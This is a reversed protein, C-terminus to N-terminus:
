KQKLELENNSFEGIRTNVYSPLSYSEGAGFRRDKATVRRRIPEGTEGEEVVWMGEDELLEEPSRQVEERQQGNSSDEATTLGSRMMGEMRREEAEEIQRQIVPNRHKYEVAQDIEDLEEEYEKMRQAIYDETLLTNLLGRWSAVQKYFDADRNFCNAIEADDHRMKAIDEEMFQGKDSLRVHGYNKVFANIREILNHGLTHFFPLDLPNMKNRLRKFLEVQVEPTKHFRMVTYVIELLHDYRKKYEALVAQYIIRLIKYWESLSYTMGGLSVSNGLSGELMGELVADKDAGPKIGDVMSQGGEVKGVLEGRKLKDEVEGMVFKVYGLFQMTFFPKIDDIKSLFVDDQTGQYQVAVSCIEQLLEMHSQAQEQSLVVLEQYLEQTKEIIKQLCMRHPESFRFEKIRSQILYVLSSSLLLDRYADLIYPTTEPTARLLETVLMNFRNNELLYEDANISPPLAPTSVSEDIIDIVKAEGRKVMNSTEDSSDAKGEEQMMLEKELGQLVGGVGSDGAKELISTLQLQSIDRGKNFLSHLAQLREPSAASSSSSAGWDGGAASKQTDNLVALPSVDPAFKMSELQDFEDDSVTQFAPPNPDLLDVPALRKVQGTSSSTPEMVLSQLVEGFGGGRQRNLLDQLEKAARQELGREEFVGMDKMGLKNAKEQLEPDRRRTAAPPKSNTVPKAASLPQAASPAPIANILSKDHLSPIFENEVGVDEEPLLRQSSRPIPSPLLDPTLSTASTFDAEELMSSLKRTLAQIVNMVASSPLPSAPQLQSFIEVVDSDDFVAILYKVPEFLFFDIEVAKVAEAGESLLVDIDRIVLGASNNFQGSFQKLVLLVKDKTAPRPLRQVSQWSSPSSSTANSVTTFNPNHNSSIRPTEQTPSSGSTESKDQAKLKKFVESVGGRPLDKVVLQSRIQEKVYDSWEVADRELAEMDVESEDLEVIRKAEFPLQAYITPHISEFETLTSPTPTPTPTPSPTDMILSGIENVFGDVMNSSTLQILQRLRDSIDIPLLLKYKIEVDPTQTNTSPTSFAYISLVVGSASTFLIDVGHPVEQLSLAAGLDVQERAWTRIFGVVSEYSAPCEPLLYMSSFDLPNVTLKSCFLSSQPRSESHLFFTPFASCRPAIKHLTQPRLGRFRWAGAVEIYLIVYLLQLMSM